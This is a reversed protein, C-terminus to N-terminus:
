AHATFVLLYSQGSAVQPQLTVPIQNQVFGHYKYFQPVLSVLKVESDTSSKWQLM